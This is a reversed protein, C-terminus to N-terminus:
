VFVHVDVPSLVHGGILVVTVEFHSEEPREADLVLEARVSRTRDDKLADLEIDGRLTGITPLPADVYRRPRRNYNPSYARPSGVLRRKIAAQANSAGETAALDGDATELVDIGTFVLDRGYLLLETDTAKPEVNPRVRSTGVRFKQDSLATSTTADQGPVGIATVRYLAGAVLDTDLALEVNNSAGAVVIAALVTPSFGLSDENDVVYFAPAPSGFAGAALPGSFVLRVRREHKVVIATLEIAM